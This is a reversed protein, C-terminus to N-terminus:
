RRWIAGWYRWYGRPPGTHGFASCAIAFNIASGIVFPADDVVIAAILCVFTFAFFLSAIIQMGLQRTAETIPKGDSGVTGPKVGRWTVLASIAGGIAIGVDIPLYTL